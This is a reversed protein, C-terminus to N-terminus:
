YYAATQLERKGDQREDKEKQGLGEANKKEKDNKETTNGTTKGKWFKEGKQIKDTKETEKYKPRSERKEKKKLNGENLLARTAKKERQRKLNENKWPVNRNKWARPELFKKGRTNKNGL